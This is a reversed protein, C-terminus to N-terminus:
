LTAKKELFKLVEVGEDSQFFGCLIDIPEEGYPITTLKKKNSDLNFYIDRKNNRYTLLKNDFFSQVTSKLKLTPDSVANLFSGPQRKAYILLDRKLESSSLMSPDKGFLVRYLTESQEITLQKAEILAEVELNLSEVQAEADKENNVEIFKKGNFPHYHLFQQLVQNSRPVRLFGDEFIVPEVIANGDQEDEFPSRQNRAYRLARNEGKEEDFWMLPFRRSNRTPLMFSLPAAEKKLKYVKDVFQTKKM